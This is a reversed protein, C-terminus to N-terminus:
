KIRNAQKAAKNSEDQTRKLKDRYSKYQDQFREEELGLDWMSKKPAVLLKGELYDALQDDPIRHTEEIKKLQDQTLM